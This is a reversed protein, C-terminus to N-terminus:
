AGSKMALHPKAASREAFVAAGAGIGCGGECPARRSGGGARAGLRMWFAFRRRSQCFAGVASFRAEAGAGIGRGSECAALRSGGGARAGLRM